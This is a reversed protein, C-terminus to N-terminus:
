KEEEYAKRESSTLERASIIRICDGRETHAVMLLRQASSTGFTIYRDEDMSHDPDRVTISLADGFVTAAEGFSVNHKRLNQAAKKLDWEFEVSWTYRTEQVAAM